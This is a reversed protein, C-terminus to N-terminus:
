AQPGGAMGLSAGNMTGLDSILKKVDIMTPNQAKVVTADSSLELQMGVQDVSSGAKTFQNFPMLVKSLKGGSTWVQLDVTAPAAAPVTAPLDKSAAASGMMASIKKMTALADATSVTVTLHNADSGDRTVKAKNLLALMEERVAQVQSPDPTPTATTAGASPMAQQLAAKADPLSVGVWKNRLLDGLAPTISDLQGPMQMMNTLGSMGGPSSAAGSQSIVQLLTAPDLKVAATKADMAVTAVTRNGYDIQASGSDDSTDSPTGNNDSDLQMTMKFLLNAMTTDSADWTQGDAKALAALAAPSGEAAVRMQLTPTDKLWSVSRNLQESPTLSSAGTSGSNQGCATLTVLMTAAAVATGARRRTILM